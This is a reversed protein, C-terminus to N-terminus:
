EIWPTEKVCKLHLTCNVQQIPLSTLELTDEDLIDITISEIDNTNDVALYQIPDFEKVYRSRELTIRRLVRRYENNVFSNVVISCTFYLGANRIASINKCKIYVDWLALVWQGRLNLPKPLAIAFSNPANSPYTNLCSKDSLYMYM